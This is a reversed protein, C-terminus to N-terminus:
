YERGSLRSPGINSTCGFIYRCPVKIGDSPSLPSDFFKDGGIVKNMPPLEIEQTLRGTSVIAKAEPVFFVFGPDNPAGISEPDAQVTRIGAQECKQCFLMFEVIPNGGGSSSACVGNVGLM